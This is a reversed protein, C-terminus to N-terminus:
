RLRSLLVMATLGAGALVSAERTEELITPLWVMMGIHQAAYLAYCAAVLVAGTERLNTHLSHGFSVIADSRGEGGDTSRIGVLTVLVWIGSIGGTTFWIARWGFDSLLYASVLLMSSFGLPMFSAWIALARSRDKGVTVRAILIGASVTTATFGMGEVFRALLMAQPSSIWGGFTSGLALLIMGAVLVRRPGLKDAVGGVVLGTFTGVASIISAIWGAAVLGADLDAQIVSMAPPLKGIHM